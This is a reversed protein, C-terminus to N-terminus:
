LGSLGTAKTQDNRLQWEMAMKGMDGITRALQQNAQAEAGLRPMSANPLESAFPIRIGTAM